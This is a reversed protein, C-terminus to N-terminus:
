EWPWNKLVGENEIERLEESTLDYKDMVLQKYEQRLRENLDSWEPLWEDADDADPPYQADAEERARAEAAVSERFIVKRRADLEPDVPTEYKTYWDVVYKHRSYDGTDVKFADGWEGNPAWVIATDSRSGPGGDPNIFNVVIANVEERQVHNSVVQKTLALLEQETFGRHLQIRYSIRKVTGIGVDEWDVVTFPDNSNEVVDTAEDKTEPVLYEAPVYGETGDPDVVHRWLRDGVQLWGSIEVMATGDPWAKIKDEMHYTRRIYVGDGGTNGVLYVKGFVEATTTLEPTPTNTTLPTISPETVLATAASVIIVTKAPTALPDPTSTIQIVTLRPMRVEREIASMRPECGPVALLLIVIVVPIVRM